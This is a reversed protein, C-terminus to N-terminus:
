AGQAFHVVGKSLTRVTFVPDGAARLVGVGHVRTGVDSQNISTSEVSPHVGVSLTNARGFSVGIKRRQEIGHERALKCIMLVNLHAPDAQPEDFHYLM